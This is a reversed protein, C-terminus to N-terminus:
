HDTVFGSGLDATVKIGLMPFDAGNCRFQANMGIGHLGM